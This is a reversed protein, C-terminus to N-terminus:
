VGAEKVVGAASQKYCTVYTFRNLRAEGDGPDEMDSWYTDYLMRNSTYTNMATVSFCITPKGLASRERILSNLAMSEDAKRSGVGIWCITLDANVYEDWSFRSALTKYRPQKTIMFKSNIIAKEVDGIDKTAIDGSADPYAFNGKKLVEDAVMSIFMSRNFKAQKDSDKDDTNEIERAIQYLNYNFTDFGVSKGGAEGRSALIAENDLIKYLERCSVFPVVQMSQAAMLKIATTAFAVSGLRTSSEFGILYSRDPLRGFRLNTLITNMLELCDNFGRVKYTKSKAWEKRMELRLAEPNFELDVNEVPIVANEVLQQNFEKSTLMVPSVKEKEKKDPLEIPDPAKVEIGAKNLMDTVKMMDM